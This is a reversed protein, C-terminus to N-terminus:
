RSVLSKLLLAGSTGMCMLFGTLNLSVDRWNLSCLLEVLILEFIIWLIIAEFSMRNVRFLWLWFKVSVSILIIMDLSFEIFCGRDLENEFDIYSTSNFSFSIKEWSKEVMDDVFIFCIGLLAM